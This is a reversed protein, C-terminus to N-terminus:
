EIYKVTLTIDDSQYLRGEADGEGDTTVYDYGILFQVQMGILAREAVAEKLTDNSPVKLPDEDWDFWKIVTIFTGGSYDSQTIEPLFDHLEIAIEGKFDCTGYYTPSSLKLEASVIEKRALSSVDFAFLGAWDTNAASDGFAVQGITAEGPSSGVTGCISPNYVVTHEATVEEPRGWSISISDTASGTSNIATATLTYTDSPDELNVQCRLPGWAGFSDDRSFSVTPGPSGTVTAEIRYYCKGDSPAYSPGEYIRLSITPASVESSTTTTTPETAETTPTGPTDLGTTTTTEKTGPTTTIDTTEETAEESTSEKETEIASTLDEEKSCRNCIASTSFLIVASTIALLIYLRNRRM